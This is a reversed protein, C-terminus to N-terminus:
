SFTKDPSKRTLRSIQATSVTKNNNKKKKKSMQKFNAKKKGAGFNIPDNYMEQNVQFYKKKIVSILKFFMTPWKTMTQKGDRAFVNVVVVFNSDTCPFIVKYVMGLLHDNILYLNKM